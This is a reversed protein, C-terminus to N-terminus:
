CRSVKECSKKNPIEYVKVDIILQSRENKRQYNGKCVLWHHPWPNVCYREAYIVDYRGVYFVDYREVYIVDYIVDYRGVYFVDYREAYIVDTGHKDM